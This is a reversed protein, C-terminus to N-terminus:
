KDKISEIYKMAKTRNFLGRMAIVTLNKELPDQKLNTRFLEFSRNDFLYKNENLTNIYTFTIDNEDTTSFIYERNLRDLLSLGDLDYSSKYGYLGLITPMVDVNSLYQNQNNRLHSLSKLSIKAEVKPPINILLPVNIVENYMSTTHFFTEHEGFAAAHDSVLIVITNKLLKQSALFQMVKGISDDLDIIANDYANILKEKQSTDTTHATPFYVDSEEHGLYPFHTANFHIVGFFLEKPAQSIHAKFAEVTLSDDHGVARDSTIPSYRKDIYDYELFFSDLGGSWSLMQSGFYFTHLNLQSAYQWLTPLALAKLSPYAGTFISQLGIHTVATSSFCKDYRLAEKFYHSINPSTKRTYGYLNLHDKRLSENVLILVNFDIKKPQIKDFKRKVISHNTSDFHQIFTYFTYFFSVEPTQFKIRPRSTIIFILSAIVIFYAYNNRTARYKLAFYFGIFLLTVLVIFYTFLKIDLLDIFNNLWYEYDLFLTKFIESTAFSHYLAYNSYQFLLISAYSASLVFLTILLFRVNKIFSLTFILIYLLSFLFLIHHIYGKDFLADRVFMDVATLALTLLIVALYLPKKSGM